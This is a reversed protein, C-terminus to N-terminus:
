PMALSKLRMKTAHRLKNVESCYFRINNKTNADKMKKLFSSFGFSLLILFFFFFFHFLFVKDGVCIYLIFLILTFLRSPSMAVVADVGVLISVFCRCLGVFIIVLYRGSAVGVGTTLVFICVSFTIVSRGVVQFRFLFPSPFLFPYLFLFLLM